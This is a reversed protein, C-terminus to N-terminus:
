SLIWTDKGWPAYAYLQQWWWRAHCFWWSTSLLSIFCNGLINIHAHMVNRNVPANVNFVSIVQTKSQLDKLDVSGIHTFFCVFLIKWLFKYYSYQVSNSALMISLFLTMGVWLVLGNKWRYPFGCWIKNEWKAKIQVLSWILIPEFEPVPLLQGTGTSSNQGIMAQTLGM